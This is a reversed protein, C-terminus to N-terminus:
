MIEKIIEITHSFGEEPTFSDAYGLNKVKDLSLTSNNMPNFANKEDDTPEKVTLPVGGVDAYIEAMRRITTFKECSVNYAEGSIGKAMILLIQAACDLSYCYSRRQLGASKMVLKEGRAAAYAFSSSIRGDTQSASPGYIHGPRAIVVHVGYESAYAKCLMESARKAIPYSNRINDIDIIGYMGEIFSEETDKIGYVESSSIYLIKSKMGNRALELWNRIGEINTLLVEVPKGTYLEPSSLGASHIIYDVESPLEKKEIANYLIFELQNDSAFRQSFKEQSTGLIYIKSLKGYTILLDVVSSGILGLGGTVAISRGQLFSLDINDCIRKLDDRYISSDLLRM